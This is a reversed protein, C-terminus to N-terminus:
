AARALDELNPKLSEELSIWSSRLDSMIKISTDVPDTQDYVNANILQQLVFGYLNMLNEAIEGGNAMDLTAMLELIIKQARQLNENQQNYDKKTIASKGAEMFRLAGDYLMIVLKLPSAGNVANKKYEEVLNRYAM